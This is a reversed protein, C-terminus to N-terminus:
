RNPTVGAFPHASLWNYTFKTVTTLSTNVSFKVTSQVNHKCGTISNKRIHKTKLFDINYQWKKQM